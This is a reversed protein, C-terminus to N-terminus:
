TSGARPGRHDAHLGRRGQHLPRFGRRPRRRAQRGPVLARLLGLQLPGPHAAGRESRPRRADARPQAPHGAARGSLGRGPLGPAQLVARPLAAADGRPEGAHLLGRVAHPCQGGARLVPRRRYARHRHRRHPRIQRASGRLGADGAPLATATSSTARSSGPRSANRRATSTPWFMNLATVRQKLGRELFGWEPKTLVRPIIDFPILRETSENDGYVAFTIGIRRFFLEAQSRRTDFQEPPTTDLWTKLAAYAERVVAPDLGSEQAGTMENFASLPM